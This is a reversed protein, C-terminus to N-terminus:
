ALQEMPERAIADVVEALERSAPKRWTGPWAELAAAIGERSRDRAALYSAKEFAAVRGLFEAIPGPIAAPLAFTPRGREFRGELEIVADPELRPLRGRNPVDFFGRSPEGRLEARVLPVVMAELWPMPRRAFAAIPRGPSREMERLADDRVDLLARARGPARVRGLRAGAELDVLEYYYHLPAGGMRELCDADVLRAATASRLLARGSEGRPWFWGLHNFGAYDLDADAAPPIPDAASRTTALAGASAAAPPDRCALIAALTTTPLECIGRAEVGSEVLARTTVGLPAVLNLVVASPALSRLRRGLALMPPLSRWGNALGGVGLGEDAPMGVRQALQEDRARAELGGFRLMLVVVHAGALADDLASTAAFNWSPRRKALLARGYGDIAAVRRPERGVIRLELSDPLDTEALLELLRVVFVGGGVIALRPTV